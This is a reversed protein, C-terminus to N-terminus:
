LILVICKINNSFTVSVGSFNESLIFCLVSRRHPPQSIVIGTRGCNVSGATPLVHLTPIKVTYILRQQLM